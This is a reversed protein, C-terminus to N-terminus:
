TVASSNLIDLTWWPETYKGSCGLWPILIFLLLKLSFLVIIIVSYGSLNNFQQIDFNTKKYLKDNKM